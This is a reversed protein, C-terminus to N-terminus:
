LKRSVLGDLKLTTLRQPLWAFASYTRLFPCFKWSVSGTPSIVQGMPSIGTGEGWGWWVIRPSCLFCLMETLKAFLPKLHQFFSSSFSNTISQTM